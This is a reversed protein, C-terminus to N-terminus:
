AGHGIRFRNQREPRKPRRIRQKQHQCGQQQSPSMSRQKPPLGQKQCDADRRPRPSEQERIQPAILVLLGQGLRIKQGVRQVPKPINVQHRRLNGAGGVLPTFELLM